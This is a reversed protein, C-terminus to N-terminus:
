RLPASGVPETTGEPREIGSPPGQQDGSPVVSATVRRRRWLLFGVAGAAIATVVAAAVALLLWRNSRSARDEHRAAAETTPTGDDDEVEPATTPLAPLTTTEPPATTTPAETTTPAPAASTPPPPRTTTSRPRATTTPTPAPPVAVTTPVPVPTPPASAGGRVAGSNPDVMLSSQDIAEFAGSPIAKLEDLVRPEWGADAAGTFYWNSGNDAVILGHTKFAEVITATYPHLGATPYDAKLRFWAGMPPLNADRAAGAQHRAPWVFSRDTRQATMRVAHDVRGAVVEDRRLLGPFIALGAADASTWGSPRLANSRLDFVAGSGATPSGGNWDAAFLESLTCSERDIMLAHADSGSEIPIDPGFPYPGPDSEDDYDFTVTVRQRGGDVVKYPIGYPMAGGSDGFDPHLRRGTGGMAVLWADSRPHVPLSRVDAHWFSDAPFIPCAEAGPPPAAVSPSSAVTTALLSALMGTAALLGKRKVGPTDAGAVSLNLRDTLM